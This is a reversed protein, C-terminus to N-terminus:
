FCSFYNGKAQQPDGWRVSRSGGKEPVTSFPHDTEDFNIIRRKEIEGITIEAESGDPLREKEDTALGSDILTKKNCTYWDNVKTFTTWENRISEQTSVSTPAIEDPFMERIRRWAWDSDFGKYITGMVVATLKGKVLRGSAQGQKSLQLMKIHLRM